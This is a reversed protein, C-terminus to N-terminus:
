VNQCKMIIGRGGLESRIDQGDPSGGSHADMSQPKSKGTGKVMGMRDATERFVRLRRVGTVVPM